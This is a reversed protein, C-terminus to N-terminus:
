EAVHPPIAYLGTSIVGTRALGAGTAAGHRARYKFLPAELHLRLPQGPRRWAPGHSGNVTTRVLCLPLRPPTGGGRAWRRQLPQLLAHRPAAPTPIPACSQCRRPHRERRGSTVTQGQLAVFLPSSPAAPGGELARRKLRVSTPPM